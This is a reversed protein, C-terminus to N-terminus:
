STPKNIVTIGGDAIIKKYIKDTLSLEQVQLYNRYLYAIGAVAIIAMAVGGTVGLLKQIQVKTGAGLM